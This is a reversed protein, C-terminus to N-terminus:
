CDSALCAAQVVATLFAADSLIHPAQCAASPCTNVPHGLLRQALHFLKGRFRWNGCGLAPLECLESQSYGRSPTAPLLFHLSTTQPPPLQRISQWKLILDKSYSTFDGVNSSVLSNSQRSKCAM